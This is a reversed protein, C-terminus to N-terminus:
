SQPQTRQSQPQPPSQPPLQPKITKHNHSHYNHKNNGKSTSITTTPPNAGAPLLSIPHFRLHNVYFLLQAALQQRFLPDRIQLSLLESSTLYKCGMYVGSFPSPPPLPPFPPPHPTLPLPLFPNSLAAFPLSQHTSTHQSLIHSIQMGHICRFPPFLPSPHSLSAHYSMIHLSSIHLSTFRLSMVHCSMVHRSIVHYSNVPYVVKWQM